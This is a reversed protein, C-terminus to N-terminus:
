CYQPFVLILSFLQSINGDTTIERVRSGDTNLILVKNRGGIYIKDKGATVGYCEEEIKIKNDKTNNTTNIFQTSFDFPLTVVAKDTCPVVTICMPQSTFSLKDEYTKYDKYIYMLHIVM